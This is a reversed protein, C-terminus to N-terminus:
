FIIGIKAMNDIGKSAKDMVDGEYKVDEGKVMEAYKCAMKCAEEVTNGFGIAGGFFGGNGNPV